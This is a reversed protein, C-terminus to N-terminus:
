RRPGKSFIRGCRILFAVGIILGMIAIIIIAVESAPFDQANM